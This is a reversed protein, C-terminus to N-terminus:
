DDEETIRIKEKKRNSFEYAINIKKNEEFNEINLTTLIDSRRV